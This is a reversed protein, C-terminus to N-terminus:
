ASGLEDRRHKRRLEIVIVLETVLLVLGVPAMRAGLMAPWSFAFGSIWDVAMLLLGGFFLLMGGWRRFRASIESEGKHEAGRVERVPQSGFGHHDYIRCRLQPHLAVQERAFREAEALSEFVTCVTADVGAEGATGSNLVAFETPSMRENWSQLQANLDLLPLTRPEGM